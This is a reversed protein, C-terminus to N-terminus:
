STVDFEIAILGTFADTSGSRAMAQPSPFPAFWDDTYSVFM